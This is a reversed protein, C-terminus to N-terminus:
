MRSMMDDNPTISVDSNLHQGLSSAVSDLLAYNTDENYKFTLRGFSMHNLNKLWEFYSVTVGGANIYMDPIVLINNKLLIDHGAPTIPGNAGESIDKAKIGM